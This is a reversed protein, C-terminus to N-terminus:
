TFFLTDFFDIQQNSVDTLSPIGIIVKGNRKERMQSLTKSLNAKERRALEALEKEKESPKPIESDEDPNKIVSKTVITEAIEESESENDSADYAVLNLAM